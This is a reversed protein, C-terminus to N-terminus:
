TTFLELIVVLPATDVVPAPLIVNVAVPASVIPALPTVAVPPATFKAAFPNFLKSVMVPLTALPPPAIL